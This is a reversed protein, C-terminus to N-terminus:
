HSTVNLWLQGFLGTYAFDSTTSNYLWLEFILRQELGPSPISVMVPFTTSANDSLVLFHNFLVRAQASTSNSIATSQNGVKVFVEYYGVVGEHNGVYTYLQIQQGAAVSTPYGGIEQSPGLVGLESFQEQSAPLLPSVAVLVALMTIVALALTGTEKDM